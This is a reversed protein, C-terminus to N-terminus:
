RNRSRFDQLSSYPISIGAAGGAAADTGGDRCLNEFGRYPKDSRVDYLQVAVSLFRPFREGWQNHVAVEMGDHLTIIEDPKICYRRGVDPNTRMWERVTALPRVVGRERSLLSSPFQRELDDFTADPHDEVYRRIVNLVFRRKNMFTRGGDLSFRCSDHGASGDGSGGRVQRPGSPSGSEGKHGCYEFSLSLERLEADIDGRDFGESELRAALLEKVARDDTLIDGIRKRLELRAVDISARGCEACLREMSFGRCSLLDCILSGSVDGPDYEARLALAIGGADDQALFVRIDRGFYVAARSGAADMFSRLREKAAGDFCGSPAAVMVPLLANEGRGASRDSLVIDVTVDTGSGQHFHRGTSMSGNTHRWGLIVMVTQVALLFQEPSTDGDIYPVVTGVIEPWNENMPPKRVGHM